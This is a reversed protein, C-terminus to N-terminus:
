GPIAQFGLVKHIDFLDQKHQLTQDVHKPTLTPSILCHRQLIVAFRIIWFSGYGYPDMLKHIKARASMTRPMNRCAFNILIWVALHGLCTLYLYM